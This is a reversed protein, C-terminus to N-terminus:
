TLFWGNSLETLYLLGTSLETIKFTIWYLEPSNFYVILLWGTPTSLWRFPMEALNFIMTWSSLDAANFIM